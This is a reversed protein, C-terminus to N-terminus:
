PKRKKLLRWNGGAGQLSEYAEAVEAPLADCNLLLREAGLDRSFVRPAFIYHLMQFQEWAKDYGACSRFAIVEDKPVEAVLPTLTERLSEFPEARDPLFRIPPFPEVLYFGVFLIIFLWLAVEVQWASSARIPAPEANSM